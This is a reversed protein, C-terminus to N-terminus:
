KTIFAGTPMAVEDVVPLKTIRKPEVHRRFHTPFKRGVCAPEVERVLTFPAQNCTETSGLIALVHAAEVREILVKTSLGPLELSPTTEPGRPDM